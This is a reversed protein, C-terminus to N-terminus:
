TPATPVRTRPKARRARRVKNPPPRRRTNPALSPAAARAAQARAEILTSLPPIVDSCRVRDNLYQSFPVGLKRCTKKLSAFTDRGRRGSESRTGGSIKRRKVYERIDGESLNNHLPLDPRDLVRLLEPKNRAMRDLAHNLSIFCTRTSCLADFRAALTVRAAATPQVKYAQLDRYLAWVTTRVAELAARQEPNFGVLKALVREAHIWCLAHCLVNFQGADDSMVGLQASIGHGLLAGLLAGETAIQVHLRGAIGLGALLSNWQTSDAYAADRHAELKCLVIRPLKQALMYELAEGSLVYDTHSSRLLQLFNIRSKSPTSEFWAFWENGIHTCYGNKGKHRAGTDDTHIHGSVRLGVKLIEGKESHFREKGETIIRHLQGTSIRVGYERLQGYLLPETVMAHYYQYLIFSQLTPGFHSGVCVAGQPLKATFLKGAPTLWKELRYRTTEVRIILEQVDFDAYGIGKSDVPVDTARIVETRDIPHPPENLARRRRRRRQPRKRSTLRSPGIKPKGKQGKLRAVEDRLAQNEERLRHNEERLAAVERSLSTVM